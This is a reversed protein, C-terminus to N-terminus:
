SVDIKGSYNLPLPLIVLMKMLERGDDVFSFHFQVFIYFPSTEVRGVNGPLTKRSTSPLGLNYNLDTQFKGVAGIRTDLAVVREWFKGKQLKLNKAPAKAAHKTM